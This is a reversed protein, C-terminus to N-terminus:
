FCCNITTHSVDASARVRVVGMQLMGGRFATIFTLMFCQKWSNKNKLSKDSTLAAVSQPEAVDEFHFVNQSDTVGGGLFPLSGVQHGTSGTVHCQLAKFQLPLHFVVERVFGAM